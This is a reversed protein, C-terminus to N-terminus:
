KEVPGGGNDYGGWLSDMILMRIKLLVYGKGRFQERGHSMDRCGHSLFLLSFSFLINSKIKEPVFHNPIGIILVNASECKSNEVKM